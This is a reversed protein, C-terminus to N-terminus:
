AIGQIEAADLPARRDFVVAVLGEYAFFLELSNLPEESFKCTM